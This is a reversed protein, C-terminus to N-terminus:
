QQAAARRNQGAKAFGAARPPRSRQEAKDYEGGHSREQHCRPSGLERFAGDMQRRQHAVERKGNANRDDANRQERCQPEPIDPRAKPVQQSCAQRM